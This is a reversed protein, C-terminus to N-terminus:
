YLFPDDLTVWGECRKAIKRGLTWANGGVPLQGLAHNAEQEDRVMCAGLLVYHYMHRDPSLELMFFWAHLPALADGAPAGKRKARADLLTEILRDAARREKELKAELSAAEVRLKATEDRVAQQEAFMSRDVTWAGTGAIAGIALLGIMTASWAARRSVLRRRRYLAVLEEDLRARTRHAEAVQKRLSEAESRLLDFDNRYM